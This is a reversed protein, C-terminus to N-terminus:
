GWARQGGGKRMRGPNVELYARTSRRGPGLENKGRAPPSACHPYANHKPRSLWAWHAAQLNQMRHEM